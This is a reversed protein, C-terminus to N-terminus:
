REDETEAVGDANEAINAAIISEMWMLSKACVQTLAWFLAKKDAETTTRTTYKVVDGASESLVFNRLINSSRLTRPPVAVQDALHPNNRIEAKIVGDVLAMARDRPTEQTPLVVKGEREMRTTFDELKKSLKHIDKESM